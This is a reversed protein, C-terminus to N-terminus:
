DINSLWKEVTVGSPCELGKLELDSRIQAIKGDIHNRPNNAVDNDYMVILLNKIFKAQANETKKSQRPKDNVPTENLYEILKNINDMRVVFYADGPLSPEPIYRTFAKDDWRSVNRVSEFMSIIGKFYPHEVDGSVSAAGILENIEYDVDVFKQIQFIGQVGGNITVGRIIDQKKSPGPLHLCDCYQAEAHLREIGLLPTDHVGDLTILDNNVPVAFDVVRDPLFSEGIYIGRNDRVYVEMLSLTDGMKMKKIEVRKAIKPSQLHISLTLNGDLSFRLVDAVSVPEGIGREIHSAAEELSLWQRLRKLKSM